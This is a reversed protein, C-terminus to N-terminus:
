LSEEKRDELKIINVKGSYSTCADISILNRGYFPSFDADKGFESGIKEINCHGYSAHWHGCCITKSPIYYSNIKMGNLWRANDWQQTDAKRWEKLPVPRFSDDSCPVFGHVFIYKETEYYDKMAPIIKTVFPTQRAKNALEMPNTVAQNFDMGTLQLATDYTGNHVHSDYPEGHDSYILKMFLDEHNGKVLIVREENLM